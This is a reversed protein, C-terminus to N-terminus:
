EAGAVPRGPRHGGLQVGGGCEGARRHQQAAPEGQARRDGRGAEVGGGVAEVLDFEVAGPDAVVHQGGTPAAVVVPQAVLGEVDGVQQVGAVVREAGPQCVAPVPAPDAEAAPPAVDVALAGGQEGLQLDDVGVAARLGDAGVGVPAATRARDGGGAQVLAFVVVGPQLVRAPGVGAEVVGGPAADEDFVPVETMQDGRGARRDAMGFDEARDRDAGCGAPGGDDVEALVDGAPQPDGDGARGPLADPQAVGLDEFIAVEAHSRQAGGGGGVPVGEAVLRARMLPLRAEGDMAEAVGLDGAVGAQVRVGVDLGHDDVGVGLGGAREGAGVRQDVM